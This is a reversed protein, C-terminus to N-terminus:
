QLETVCHGQKWSTWVSYKPIFPCLAQLYSLFFSLPTHAHTHVRMHICERTCAHEQTRTFLSLCPTFCAPCLVLVPSESYLASMTEEYRKKCIKEVDSIIEFCVNFFDQLTDRSLALLCGWTHSAKSDGKGRCPKAWPTAWAASLVTVPVTFRSSTQAPSPKCLSLSEAEEVDTKGDWINWVSMLTVQTVAVRLIQCKVDKWRPLGCIRPFPWAGGRAQPIGSVADSWMSELNDGIILLDPVLIFRLWACLYWFFQGVVWLEFQHWLSTSIGHCGAKRAWPKRQEEVEVDGM